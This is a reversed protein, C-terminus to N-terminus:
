TIVREDAMGPAGTVMTHYEGNEGALDIGCNKCLVKMESLLQRDILRGNWDSPIASHSIFSIRAQIGRTLLQEMVWERDQQWLPRLVELEAKECCDVIWNSCGGVYDIDGTVATTANLTTKIWKLQEIYSEKYPERVELFHVHLGLRAAQKEMEPQPHAQFLPNGVPVFTVLGVINYNQEQAIHLALCSDKGGTWLVVANKM